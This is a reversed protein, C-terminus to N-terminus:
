VNVTKSTLFGFDSERSQASLALSSDDRWGGIANKANRAKTGMRNRVANAESM